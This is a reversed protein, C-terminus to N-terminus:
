IKLYFDRTLEQYAESWINHDDNLVLSEEDPVQVQFSFELLYREVPKHTRSKVECKRNLYLSSLGAQSIFLKAESVPLIISLRGEPKLLRKAGTILDEFTLSETHRVTIRSDNTPKFSNRFFPPNSIILDYQQKPSFSQLSAHHIQIRNAWPSKLVNEKAQIVDPQQIEVADILVSSATRQAIMLAILGSGTGVDLISQCGTVDAWAGVLVGDTGVKHSSKSQIVTFKKFVFDPTPKM